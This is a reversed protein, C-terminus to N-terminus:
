GAPHLQFVQRTTTSGSNIEPRYLGRAVLTERNTGPDIDVLRAALQSTPSQSNIDAIITPSGMVTFGSAPAPELRYSATGTQDDAPATACAGGGAIPDFPQGAQDSVEPSIVQADPDSFHVEGHQIASWSSARYPLDTNPDDFLGTAGRSPGGCAQTLTQM